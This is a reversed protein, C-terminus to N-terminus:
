LPSSAPFFVLSSGVLFSLLYFAVLAIVSGSVIGPQGSVRLLFVNREFAFKALFSESLLVVQSIVDLCLM